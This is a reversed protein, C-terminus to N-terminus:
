GNRGCTPTRGKKRGQSECGQGRAETDEKFKSEKSDDNGSDHTKM